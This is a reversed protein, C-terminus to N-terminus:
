VRYANARANGKSDTAKNMLQQQRRAFEDNKDVFKEIEKFDEPYLKLRIRRRAMIERRLEKQKKTPCCFYACGFLSPAMLIYGM